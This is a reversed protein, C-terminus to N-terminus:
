VLLSHVASFAGGANCLLARQDSRILGLSELALPDPTDKLVGGGGPGMGKVLCLRGLWGCRGRVPRESELLGYRLPFCM